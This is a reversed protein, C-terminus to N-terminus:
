SWPRLVAKFFAVWLALSIAVIVMASIPGPIRGGTALYALYVSVRSATLRSPAHASM